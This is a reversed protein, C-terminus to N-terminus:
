TTLHVKFIKHPMKLTKQTFFALLFIDPSTTIFSGVHSNNLDLLLPEVPLNMSLLCSLRAKIVHQFSLVLNAQM